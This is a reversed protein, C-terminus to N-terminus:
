KNLNIDRGEEHAKMLERVIESVTRMMREAKSGEVGVHLVM